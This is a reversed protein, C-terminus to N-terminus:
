DRLLAVEQSLTQYVELARATKPHSEALPRLEEEKRATTENPINPNPRSMVAVGYIELRSKEM